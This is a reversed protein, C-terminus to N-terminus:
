YPTYEPSNAEIFEQLNKNLDFLVLIQKTLLYLEEVKAYIMTEIVKQKENKLQNIENNLSTIKTESESIIAKDLALLTKKEDKLIQNYSIRVKSLKTALNDNSPLKIDNLSSLLKKKFEIKSSQINM